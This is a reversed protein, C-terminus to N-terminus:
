ICEFSERKGQFISQTIATGSHDKWSSVNSPPSFPDYFDHFRPFYDIPINWKRHMFRYIDYRASFHSIHIYSWYLSTLYLVGIVLWMPINKRSQAAFFVGYPILLGIIPILFRSTTSWGFFYIPLSALFLVYGIIIGIQCIGPVNRKRIATALYIFLGLLTIIFVPSQFLLGYQPDFLYAGLGILLNGQALVKQGRYVPGFSWYGYLHHNVFLLLGWSLILAVLSTITYRLSRSCIIYCVLLLIQIVIFKIHLFPLVALFIMFASHLIPSRKRGLFIIMGYMVIAACPVEPYIQGNFTLLPPIISCLLSGWVVFKMDIGMKHGLYASGCIVFALLISSFFVCAKYGGIWYAPVLLISLGCSHGSREPAYDIVHPTLEEELFAKYDKEDYNNKVKLDGDKILSITMLLYHPEDGTPHKTRFWALLCYVISILVFFKFLRAFVSQKFMVRGINLESKSKM